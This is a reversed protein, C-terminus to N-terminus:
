RDHEQSTTPAPFEDTARSVASMVVTQTGRNHMARLSLGVMHVVSGPGFSKSGGATCEVEVEGHEIVVLADQWDEDVYPLTVGPEIAVVRMNFAAPLPRGLFSLRRPDSTSEM